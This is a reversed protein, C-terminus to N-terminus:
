FTPFDKAEAEKAGAAIDLIWAANKTWSTFFFPSKSNRCFEPTQLHLLITRGPHRIYFVYDLSFKIRM